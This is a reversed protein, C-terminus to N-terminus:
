TEHCWWSKGYEGELSGVAEEIRAATRGNVVVRAGSGALGKAIALGIGQTSGTVLATKHTLDINVVILVVAAKASTGHGNGGM